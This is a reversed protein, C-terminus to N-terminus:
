EDEKCQQAPPTPTSLGNGNTAAVPPTSPTQSATNTMQAIEPTHSNLKEFLAKVQEKLFSVESELQTQKGKLQANKQSLNPNNRKFLRIKM